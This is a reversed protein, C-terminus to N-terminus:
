TIWLRQEETNRVHQRLLSEFGRLKDIRRSEGRESLEKTAAELHTLADPFLGSRYELDSLELLIDALHGSREPYSNLQLVKKYDWRALEYAQRRTRIRARQLFLNKASEWADSKKAERILDDLVELDDPYKANSTGGKASRLSAIHAIRRMYGHREILTTATGTDRRDPLLGAHLLLIDAQYLPMPGRTAIEWAEDLDAGAGDSDGTLMRYWVRTLLGATLHNMVGAKRLGEVAATLHAEIEHTDSVPHHNDSRTQTWTTKERDTASPNVTDVCSLAGTLLGRYLAARALTLHDLAVDLLSLNGATVWELTQTARATVGDCDFRLSKLNPIQSQPNIFLRWAADEANSLLLECYQFGQVSYLRPYQPQNKAQLEEAEQFLRRSIERDGAQHLAYAHTTRSAMRQFADGSREAFEVAQKGNAVARDIRGLTLELESLNGTIGAATSWNEQEVAMEMGVGMPALAEELRGLARLRVAAENLLWAQDAPALNPAPQRWASDVFFNAVAGLDAGMAGLKKTSYFGDNGTGRLIRDRYVDFLAKQHLEGKCGHAVAQYLPQLGELTDPRQPTTATLHEFLRQHGARWAEPSERELAAAFWERLLPHADIPAHPGDFAILHMGELRNLIRQWQEPSLGTLGPLNKTWSLCSFVRIKTWSLCSFIRPGEILVALLEREAARDFFGLLRLLAVEPSDEGLHNVYARFLRGAHGGRERDEELLPIESRRRIHHDDTAEKLYSGLLMLSYAHGHYDAVARALEKDTGRVHFERLLAIGAATDLRDLPRQVIAKSQHPALETIPQRSTIVCLAPERTATAGALAMLLHGMAPDKLRGQNFAPPHQLPELGDLVLLGRRARILRALAEAKRTPDTPPEGPFGFYNLAQQFFLESSANRREDSGQSYFSHVFVGGADLWGADRLNTLWEVLLRTKGAGGEAHLVLVRAEGGAWAADLAALEADRGAFGGGYTKLQSLGHPLFPVTEPNPISPQTTTISSSRHPEPSLPKDPEDTSSIGIKLGFLNISDLHLRKKKLEHFWKM